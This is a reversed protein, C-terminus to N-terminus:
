AAVARETAPLWIKFKSFKGGASALGVRGGLEAVLIRVLDMGAGRGADTTVRDATSFGPRFILAMTQRPDLMAGDEPGELALTPLTADRTEFILTAADSEAGSDDVAVAVFRLTPGAVFGAPLAFVLNTLTGNPPHFINTVGELGGSVSVRLAALTADDRATAAFGFRRGTEVPGTPPETRTLTLTPRENPGVVLELAGM